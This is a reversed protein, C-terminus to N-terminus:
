VVGPAPRCPAANGFVTPRQRDPPRRGVAWAASAFRRRVAAAEAPM